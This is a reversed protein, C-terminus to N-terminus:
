TLDAQYAYSSNATQQKSNATQQKSNATQQKSNATQQKSNAPLSLLRFIVSVLFKIM